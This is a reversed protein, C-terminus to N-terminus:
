LLILWSIPDGGAMQPWQRRHSPYLQIPLLLGIIPRHFGSWKLGPRQSAMLLPVLPKACTSIAAVVNSRHTHSPALWQPMLEIIYALRCMWWRSRCFVTGCRHAFTAEANFGSGAPPRIDDARQIFRIQKRDICKDYASVSPIPRHKLQLIGKNM